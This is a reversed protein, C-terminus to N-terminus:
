KSENKAIKTLVSTIVFENTFSTLEDKVRPINQASVRRGNIETWSFGRKLQSDPAIQAILEQISSLKTSWKEFGVKSIYKIQSSLQNLAQATNRIRNELVWRLNQQIVDMSNVHFQLLQSVSSVIKQYTFLVAAEFEMNRQIIFESVATPTKLSRCAALDAVSEDIDHGIGTLVPIKSKSIQIAINPHDFDALDVKGGGGRIIVIVDFDGRSAIEEMQACVEPAASAGQMASPFLNSKFAYGYPNDELQRVFDQLGAATPSSIIAIRQIVNPIPLMKNKLLIGKATLDRITEARQLALKGITFSLDMDEIILKLGYRENFDVKVKVLIERGPQLASEQEGGLKKYISNLQTRWIVASAQAIIDADPSPKEIVELYAHGRSERFSAIECSIWISDQFNLAVVRRIYENLNYLSISPNNSM